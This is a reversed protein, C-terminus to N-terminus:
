ILGGPTEDSALAEQLLARMRARPIPKLGYKKRLANRREWLRQLQAIYDQRTAASANAITDFLDQITRTMDRIRVQARAPLAQLARGGGGFGGGGAFPGTGQLFQQANILAQEAARSAAINALGMAFERRAAMAQALNALLAQNRANIAEALRQATEATVGARRELDVSSGLIGRDLSQNIVDQLGLTRERLVGARATEYAARIEKRQERLAQLADQRQLYLQQLQQNYAVASDPPLSPVTASRRRETNRPPM